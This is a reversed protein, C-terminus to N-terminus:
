SIMKNSVALPQAENKSTQDRALSAWWEKATKNGLPADFPHEGKFYLKISKKLRTNADKINLKAIRTNRDNYETRLMNLLFKGVRQM